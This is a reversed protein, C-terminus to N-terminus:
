QNGYGLVELTFAEYANTIKSGSDYTYISQGTASTEAAKVAFPIEANFIRISSGYSERLGTCIERSLNTRSDTMTLLIGAINLATNAQRRVTFMTNLLQTMGKAPLYHSQVPIIVSDAAVLANITLMGLSPMCDILVYDYNSKIQTLYNKLPYERSIANAIFSEMASLEVRKVWGHM